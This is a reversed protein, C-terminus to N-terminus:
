KGTIKKRHHSKGTSLCGVSIGVDGVKRVGGASSSPM